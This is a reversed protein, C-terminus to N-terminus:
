GCIYFCNFFYIELFENDSFTYRFRNYITITKHLYRLKVSFSDDTNIFHRSLAFYDKNDNCLYISFSHTNTNLIFIHMNLSFWCKALLNAYGVHVVQNGNRSKLEFTELCSCEKTKQSQLGSNLFQFLFQKQEM